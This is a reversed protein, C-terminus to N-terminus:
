LSGDDRLLQTLDKITLGGCGGFCQFLNAKFNFSASPTSSLKPDEHLPCYARHEGDSEKGVLWPTFLARAQQTATSMDSRVTNHLVTRWSAHRWRTTRRAKRIRSM